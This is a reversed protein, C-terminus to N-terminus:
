SPEVPSPPKIPLPKYQARYDYPLQSNPAYTLGPIPAPKVAATAAPAPPKYPNASQFQMAANHQATLRKGSEEAGLRTTREAAGFPNLRGMTQKILDWGKPAYSASSAAQFAPDSFMRDYYKGRSLEDPTMTKDAGPLTAKRRLERMQHMRQSAQQMPAFQRPDGADGVGGLYQMSELQSGGTTLDSGIDKFGKGMDGWFSQALKITIRPDVGAAASKEVLGELYSLQASSLHSFKMSM